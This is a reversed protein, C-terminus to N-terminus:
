KLLQGIKFTKLKEEPKEQGNHENEFATTGDKGCIGLIAKEGGPHNKIWSTLDYVNGRIVSWCSAVSNHKQVESLPYLNQVQINSTIDKTTPNINESNTNVNNTEPKIETNIKPTLNNKANNKLLNNNTLYFVGGMGIIVVVLILVVLIKKM